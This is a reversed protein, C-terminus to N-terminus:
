SDIPVAEAARFRLMRPALWRPAPAPRPISWDGEQDDDACEDHDAPLAQPRPATCRNQLPPAAHEQYESAREGHQDQRARRCFRTRTRGAFPRQHPTHEHEQRPRKDTGAPNTANSVAVRLRPGAATTGLGCSRGASEEGGEIVEAFVGGGLPRADRSASRARRKLRSAHGHRAM